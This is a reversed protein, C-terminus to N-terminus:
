SRAVRTFDRLADECSFRPQWGSAQKLKANSMVCPYESLSVWGRSVNILRLRFLIDAAVKMFGAPLRLPRLGMLRYSESLKIHDDPAVNYIGPLDQTVATYFAEGLDEEHLWQSEPDRGALGFLAQVKLTDILFEAGPGVVIPPRLVTVIIEPHVAAFSAVMEEVAAKDTSYYSDPNPRLPQEEIMGIPNDPNSGYAAVSSAIVAKRVGALACAEIVNKTGGFNIAHTKAKDHIEAVIFALHLVTDIGEFVAALGEDRVDMRHFEIKPSSSEFPAVDLGVIREIRPDAELRPIISAAFFGTIGTVAVTTM